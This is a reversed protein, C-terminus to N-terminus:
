LAQQIVSKQFEEMKALAELYLNAEDNKMDGIQKILTNMHLSMQKHTRVFCEQQLSLKARAAPDILIDFDPDLNARNKITSIPLVTYDDNRPGAVILVPRGKKRTTKTKSDYYDVVSMYVKGIM